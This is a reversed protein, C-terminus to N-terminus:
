FDRAICCVFLWRPCRQKNRQGDTSNEVIMVFKLQHCNADGAEATCTELRRATSGTVLTRGFDSWIQIIHTRRRFISCALTNQTELVEKLSSREKPLELINFVCCCSFFLWTSREHDHLEKSSSECHNRTWSPHELARSQESPFRQCDIGESSAKEFMWHMSKCLLRSMVEKCGLITWIIQLIYTLNADEQVYFIQGVRKKAANLETKPASVLSWQKKSRCDVMEVRTVLVHLIAM